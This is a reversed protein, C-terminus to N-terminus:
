SAEALYGDASPIYFTANVEPSKRKELVPHTAQPEVLRLTVFCKM